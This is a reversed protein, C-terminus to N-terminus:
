ISTAKAVQREARQVEIYEAKDDVQILRLPCGRV